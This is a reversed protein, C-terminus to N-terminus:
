CSLLVAAAAPFDAADEEVPAAFAAVTAEEEVPAEVALTTAEDEVPGDHLADAPTLLVTLELGPAGDAVTDELVALAGGLV